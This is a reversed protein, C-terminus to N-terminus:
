RGAAFRKAERMESIRAVELMGRANAFQSDEVIMFDTKLLAKLRKAIYEDEMVGGAFLMRNMFGLQEGLVQMIGDIINRVLEGKAGDRADRLDVEKGNYTIPAGQMARDVMAPILKGGTKQFFAEELAKEVFNMGLELTTSYGSLPNIKANASMEFTLIETTKYGPEVIVFTNGPKALEPQKKLVHYLVAAGQPFVSVRDFKIIHFKEEGGFRLVANYDTLTKKFSEKQEAAYLLPPGTVLHVPGNNEESLLAFAAALLIKTAPNDIKNKEFPSSCDRAERRALDGIFYQRETENQSIIVHEKTKESGGFVTSLQRNVGTGVATRILVTKGSENIGKVYGYGLDIAIKFM